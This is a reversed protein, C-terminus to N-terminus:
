TSTQFSFLFQLLALLMGVRGISALDKIIIGIFPFLSLFSFRSKYATYIGSFFIAVYGFTSIYPIIGEIEGKNTLRYIKNANIFIAPISGFKDLLVMWHQVGAFLAIISFIFILYKLTKGDDIFIKLSLGKNGIETNEVSFLSKSSIITLIGFLFALFASVIYFWAIPIIDPYPLFKLEYFFVLGGWIFCYITLHNIWKRFILKGAIIGLFSVAFIILLSM